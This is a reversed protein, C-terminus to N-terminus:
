RNGSLKRTWTQALVDLNTALNYRDEVTARAKQGLKLRFEVDNALQGLAIRLAEPNAAPVLLGNKRDEILEPIAAVMTSVCPIGLAMAEMLAVPLGEAFSALVFADAQAVESLTQRHAMAGPFRVRGEIGLRKCLSELSRREPGDGILTCSYDVGETALRALAELLIRHGKAAVMRGTCVLRLPSRQNTAAASGPEPLRLALCDVGLRVVELRSDDLDPAIRLAQSRCFDSICIVFSASEIKRRLYFAEQDFFEDPGHLTLSWPIKWALAALMGVTAM